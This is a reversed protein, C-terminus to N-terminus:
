YIQGCHGCDCCTYGKFISALLNTFWRRIRGFFSDAHCVCHCEIKTFSGIKVSGKGNTVKLEGSVTDYGDKTVKVTYTGDAVLEKPFYAKGKENTVATTVKLEGLYIMVAAGEVPNKGSDTVTVSITNADAMGETVTKTWKEHCVQCEYTVMVKGDAATDRGIEKYNHGNAPATYNVWEYGCDNCKYNTSAPASCTANTSSSSANSSHRVATFRAYVTVNGTIENSFNYASGGNVETYWGSFNYHYVSNNAKTLNLEPAIAKDGKVVTQTYLTKTGTENKFTVYYTEVGENARFKASYAADSTVTPIYEPAYTNLGDTWGIFTHGLLWQDDPAVVKAGYEYSNKSIVRGANNYFTIEYLRPSEVLEAKISINSSVTMPFKLEKGDADTWKVSYTTDNTDEKVDIEPLDTKYLKAGNTLIITSTTGDPKTVTVTYASTEVKEEHTQKCNGCTYTTITVFKGEREETKESTFKWNHGTAPITKTIEDGCYACTKARIGDTECKAPTKITWASYSHNDPDIAISTEFTEGCVSCKYIGKGEAKCTAPAITKVLAGATHGGKSAIPKTEVIAGCVACEKHQSGDTTCTAKKDVIWDTEAGHGLAEITETEKTADCNKCHFSKSGETTCTPEVDITKETEWDHGNSNVDNDKHTDGCKTCTLITYGDEDCTPAVVTKVYNHGKAEIKGNGLVSASCNKCKYVGDGKENCTAAQLTLVLTDSIEHKGYSGYVTETHDCNDCKYTISSKVQCTGETESIQSLAHPALPLTEVYDYGCDLCEKTKTGAVTCTSETGTEKGYNHEGTSEIVTEKRDDCASCTEVLLGDAGCTADKSEEEVKVYIHGLAPIVTEQSKEDCVSCHISKSGATTCTAETDTTFETNWTHGTRSFRKVVKIETECTKCVKVTYSDTTCTAPITEIEEWDHGDLEGIIEVEGCVLCTKKIITEEACEKGAITEEEWDHGTAPKGTQTETHDCRSCKYYNEGAKECTPAKSKEPVLELDHGLSSVDTDTYTDGCKKCTHTTYGATTCTPETVVSDYEHETAPIPNTMLEKNCKSCIKVEVGAETCTPETKVTWEISNVDDHGLKAITGTELLEGCIKCEKHQSGDAECTAVQDIIWDSTTHAGQITVTEKTKNGAKDGATITYKGGPIGTPNLNGETDFEYGVVYYTIDGDTGEIFDVAEGNANTVTIVDMENDETVTFVFGLCQKETVVTPATTDFKLTASQITYTHNAYDTITVNLYYDQADASIPFNYNVATDYQKNVTYVGSIAEVKNGDKDYWDYAITKIGYGVDSTLISVISDNRVYAISDKNPQESSNTATTWINGGIVIQGNPATEDDLKLITEFVRYGCVTCNQHKSGDKEYTAEVDTIWEGYTHENQNYVAYLDADGKVTYTTKTDLYTKDGEIVTGANVVVDGDKKIAFGKLTYHYDADSDKKINDISIETNYGGVYTKVLVGNADFLRITHANPIYDFTAVYYLEETIHSGKTYPIFNGDADTKKVGNADALYWGTFGWTYGERVEANELKPTGSPELYIRNYTYKETYYNEFTTQEVNTPKLWHVNYFVDHGTFVAIYKVEGTVKPLENPQYIRVGDTWGDFTYTYRVTSEKTPDAPAIPTKGYEIEQADGILTEDENVFTVNYKRVTKTYTAVYKVEDTKPATISTGAPYFVGDTNGEYYATWGSFQYTYQETQEKEPATPLEIASDWEYEKATGIPAYDSDADDLFSVNVWNHEKYRAYYTQDDSQITTPKFEAGWENNASDYKYWGIFEYTTNGVREKTPIDVPAKVDGGNSCVQDYFLEAENYFWAHYQVPVDTYYATYTEPGTVTVVTKNGSPSHVNGKSDLWHSFVHSNSSDRWEKPNPLELASGYDVTYESKGTNAGSNTGYNTTVTHQAVKAEFCAYYTASDLIRFTDGPEIVVTGDKEKAWGIFTYTNMSIGNTDKDDARVPVAAPSNVSTNFMGSVTQSYANDYPNVFTATYSKMDGTRKYEAKYTAVVDGENIGDFIEEGLEEGTEENVWRYFTYTGSENTFDAPNAPKVANIKTEYGGIVEKILQGNYDYFLAKNNVPSWKAYYTYNNNVATNAELKTGTGNVGTYWGDFNYGPKSATPLTQDGSSTITEGGYAYLRDSGIIEIGERSSKKYFKINSITSTEGPKNADFRITVYSKGQPITIEGTVTGKQTSGKEGFVGPTTDADPFVFMQTDTDKENYYSFVYTEGAVVPIHYASDHNTVQEGNSATNELTLKGGLTDHKMNGTFTAASAWDSYSFLNEFNLDYVVNSIDVQIPTACSSGCYANIYVSVGHTDGSSNKAVYEKASNTVKVRTKAGSTELTIGTLGSTETNTAEASDSLCFKPAEYWNVGYQDAASVTPTYVTYNPTVTSSPVETAIRSVNESWTLIPAPKPWNWTEGGTVVDGKRNTVKGTKGDDSTIEWTRGQTEWWGPDLTYSGNVIHMDNLYMGTIKVEASRAGHDGIEFTIKYPWCGAPLTYTASRGNGKNSVMDSVSWTQTGESGTGNNSRYYFTFNAKGGNVQDATDYTVKFTYGSAAAEAKMFSEPAVFVLSSFVMLFALFVSISKKLYKKM